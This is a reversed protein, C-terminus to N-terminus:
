FNNNYTECVFKDIDSSFVCDGKVSEFGIRFGGIGCFLDIVKVNLMKKHMSVNM